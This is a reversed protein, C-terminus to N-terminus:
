MAAARIEVDLDYTRITLFQKAAHLDAIGRRVLRGLPEDVEYFLETATMEAEDESGTRIYQFARVQLVLCLVGVVKM